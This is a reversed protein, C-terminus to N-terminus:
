RSVVGLWSRLKVFQASPLAKTFIDALMEGTPCYELEIVNKQVMDRIFHYKIQIHKTKAHDGPNKAICMAAQNDEFITLADDYDHNLDSLLQKLWVAEQAAGALAVYEAEATSLAVCNQKSSRWSVVGNSMLFCYGSTSKRDNRDGAWDADSYGLCNSDTKEFLVGFESTGKLHRLIRKVASWHVNTPKSCFKAVNSVAFAIDPRTKTSLYLLGGVASQYRKPDFLECNDTAKELNSNVDVPNSVPNSNGLGFKSLL